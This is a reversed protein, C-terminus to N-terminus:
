QEFPKYYEVIKSGCVLKKKNQGLSTIYLMKYTGDKEILARFEKKLYEGMWVINWAKGHWLLKNKNILLKQPKGKETVWKGDIVKSYESEQFLKVDPDSDFRECFNGTHSEFSIEAHNKEKLRILAYSNLGRIDNFYLVYVSDKLIAVKNVKLLDYFKEIYNEGIQINNWHGKQNVKFQWFGYLEKPVIRVTKYNKIAKDIGYIRSFELLHFGLIILIFMGLLIKNSTKM